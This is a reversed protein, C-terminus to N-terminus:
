EEEGLYTKIAKELLDFQRRLGPLLSLVSDGDGQRSAQEIEFAASRLADGGIGAAAGKLSHAHGSVGARDGAAACAEIGALEAPIERLFEKLVEGAAEADGALNDLLREAGFVAPPGSLVQKDLCTEAAKGGRVLRCLIEFLREREVPKALYEDMGADLCRERDGAMAHATMAIVPVRPMEREKEVRRIRRVTEMGDMEPMQVDLLVADYRTKELAELAERGSEATDASVGAGRLMATIVRRNVANDEVALIRLNKLGEAASGKKRAFPVGDEKGGAPSSAELVKVTFWFEAGPGGGPLGSPSVAGATGGMLEALERSIALGLGTGGYKRTSSPDLQTFKTFLRESAFEPVGIGTDAVAFRLTLEGSHGTRKEERVTVRIRGKETFKVANDLLNTLIQGIRRRDGRVRDPVSLGVSGSFGLGKASARLAGLSLMEDMFKRFDFDEELLELKGAEMKSFDLIDNILALLSEGSSRIIDAYEQQERNLPTDRLLVSMGIVGNLPTRIEHSVNALFQSKATNAAEAKDAMEQARLLARGLSLNSGALEEKAEVLSLEFRKRETIDHVMGVSRVIKGSEDRFHACREQVFLVEGTDRKVIRHEIEYGDDNRTLSLRYAADVRERDDPHVAELFADYTPITEGGPLGFLVYVEDSWTLRMTALELEWSGLRAIEQTKRLLSESKRLSGTREGVLLELEEGRGALVATLVAMAATLFLGALLVGWGTGGPYLEEFAPGEHAAILLTKGFILLPFIVTGPNRLCDEEGRAAHGPWSDALLEAPKGPRLLYLGAVASPRERDEAFRASRELLDRLRIGALAFGQMRGGEPFFVPRIALIGKEGETEQVLEVPDSGVMLGTRAAEEISKRRVPETGMDYGLATENGERPTVYTVVYHIDRNEGPIHGDEGGLPWVAFGPLGESRIREEFAKRESVPVASVWEWSQVVSDRSLFKAFELFEGYDVTESGEFFSALAELRINRIDNLEELIPATYGDALRSFLVDREDGAWRRSTVFSASTIVTGALVVIVAEAARFRRRREHPLGARWDLFVGGALVLLCLLLMAALPFIGAQRVSKKWAAADMDLGFVVPFGSGKGTGLPVFASVWEGWRDAYPGATEARGYRFVRFLVPPAEEYVQGPASYDKSQEEESDVHFFVQGEETKGMLYLFRFSPFFQRLTQLHDKLQRYDPLHVDGATGSFADMSGADLSQAMLEATRLLESKLREEERRVNEMIFFAGAALLPLLFFALLRLNKGPFGGKTGAGGNEGM